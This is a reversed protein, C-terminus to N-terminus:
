GRLGLPWLRSAAPTVVGAWRGHLAAALAVIADGELGRWPDLEPPASDLLWRQRLSAGLSARGGVLGVLLGVLAIAASDWGRRCALGQAIAFQGQSQEVLDLAQGVPSAGLALALTAINLSPAPKLTQCLVTFLHECAMAAETSLGLEAVWHHVTARHHGHADAMLWLYPFANITAAVSSPLAQFHTRWDLPEPGGERACAAAIQLLGNQWDGDGVARRSATSRDGIVVAELVATLRDRQSGVQVM